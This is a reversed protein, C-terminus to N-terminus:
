VLMRGGAAFMVAAFVLTAAAPSVAGLLKAGAVGGALMGISVAVFLEADFWGNALKQAFHKEAVTYNVNRGAFLDEVDFMSVNNIGDSIYNQLLVTDDGASESFCNDYLWVGCSVAKEGVALVPHLGACEFCSAAFLSLEFSTGVRSKLIKTIDGVPM